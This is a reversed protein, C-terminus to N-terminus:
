KLHAVLEKIDTIFNSDAFLEERRKRNFPHCIWELQTEKLAHDKCACVSMKIGAQRCIKEFKTLNKIKEEFPISYLEQDSITKTQESLAEGCKRTYDNRKWLERMAKTLIIYGIVAEKVGMKSVDSIIKTINEDTDDITPLLPDMRVSLSGLGHIRSLKEINELRKEYTPVGPEVIKNRANNFNTIGIQIWMLEPRQQIVDLIENTFIGKSIFFVNVNHTFLKKLVIATSHSLEENGLPDSSYCLYVVPPFEEKALFKDLQLPLINGKYSPNQLKYLKLELPSFLCYICRHPCGLSIDMVYGKCANPEFRIDAQLDVYVGWNIEPKM